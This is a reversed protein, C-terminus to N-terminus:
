VHQGGGAVSSRVLTLQPRQMALLDETFGKAHGLIYEPAPCRRFYSLLELETKTLPPNKSTPTSTATM